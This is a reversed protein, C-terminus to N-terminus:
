DLDCLESGNFSILNWQAWGIASVNNANVPCPFVIELIYHSSYFWDFGNQFRKVVSHVPAFVETGQIMFIRTFYVPLIKVIKFLQNSAISVRIRPSILERVAKSPPHELLLVTVSGTLVCAIKFLLIGLSESVHGEVLDSLLSPSLYTFDSCFFRVFILESIPM